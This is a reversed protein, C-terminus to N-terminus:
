IYFSLLNGQERFQPTVQFDEDDLKKYLLTQSFASTM